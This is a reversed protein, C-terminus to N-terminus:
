SGSCMSKEYSQRENRGGDKAVGGTKEIRAVEQSLVTKLVMLLTKLVNLVVRSIVRSLGKQIEIVAPCDGALLQASQYPLTVWFPWLITRHSDAM